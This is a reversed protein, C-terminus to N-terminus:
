RSRELDRQRRLESRIERAHDRCSVPRKLRQSLLEDIRTLIQSIRGETRNFKLALDKQPADSHVLQLLIEMRREGVADHIVQLLYKRREPWAEWYRDSAEGEILRRLGGLGDDSVTDTDPRLGALDSEPERPRRRCRLRVERGKTPPRSATSPPRPGILRHDRPMCDGTGLTLIPTGTAAKLTSAATLSTSGHPAACEPCTCKHHSCDDAKVFSCM